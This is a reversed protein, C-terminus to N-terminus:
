RIVQLLAGYADRGGSAALVTSASYAEAGSIPKVAASTESKAGQSLGSPLSKVRGLM